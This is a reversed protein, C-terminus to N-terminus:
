RATQATPRPVVHDQCVADVSQCIVRGLLDLEADSVALPPMVVMVDGLPRLWVGNNICHRCAQWGRREAAPFPRGAERDAVLEIGAMMGIQRVQGVHPHDALPAIAAALRQIKRPLDHELLRGDILVDLSAIAAAAALPNGGYTHGHQFTRGEAHPGLFTEYVARTALTAAMPLYGATLSKGLCVLDPTVDEHECAFMRGTRGFGTVIEDAILLVDHLRTLERVGRLYGLPQMIMGAAGQVLPEIVVAAIEERRDALVSDLAALHHAADGARADPAPLRIVDFLLPQFLDHFREIGGLSTSGITDGHYASDFAVYKTKEARPPRLQRWYQFAIKLAAEVASAGDSSYFVHNLDGPAL